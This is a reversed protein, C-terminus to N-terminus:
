PFLLIYKKYLTGLNMQTQTCRLDIKPGKDVNAARNRKSELEEGDDVIDERESQGPTKLLTVDLAPVKFNFLRLNILHRSM